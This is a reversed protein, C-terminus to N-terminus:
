LGSFFFFFVIIFRVKNIKAQCLYHIASRNQGAEMETGIAEQARTIQVGDSRQDTRRATLQETILKSGSHM